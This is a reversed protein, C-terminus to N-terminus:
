NLPISKQYLLRFFIILFVVFVVPIALFIPLAALKAVYLGPTKLHVTNITSLIHSFVLTIYRNYSYQLYVLRWSTHRKSSTVCDLYIRIGVPMYHLFTMIPNCDMKSSVIAFASFSLIQCFISPSNITVIDLQWYDVLSFRTSCKDSYICM